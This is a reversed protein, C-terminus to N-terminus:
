SDKTKGSAALLESKPGTMMSAVIYYDDAEKTTEPIHWAFSGMNMVTSALTVDTHGSDSRLRIKMIM